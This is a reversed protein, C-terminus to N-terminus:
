IRPKSLFFGTMQVPSKFTAGVSIPIGNREFDIAQSLRVTKCIKGMSFPVPIFCRSVSFSFRCCEFVDKFWWRVGVMRFENIDPALKMWFVLM